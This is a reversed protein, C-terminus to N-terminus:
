DHLHITRTNRHMYVSLVLGVGMFVCVLSTGGASFFPLTVGIVPLLALCMGLNIFMQAFMMAFFGVAIIKGSEKRCLRAAKLCRICIISLLIIVALCGVIGLEEGISVFIFDNQGEPVGGNQTLSGRFLGQGFFGGNALAARGRYQQYTSGSIDAEIDFVSVIRARQDENMVLFYVLPSAVLAVGIAAVFYKWSLGAALLMFVVMIAFVLATGDDGQFHILLVPFAGHLLVPILTKPKNISEKVKSLHAAFTVIFCIKMLESPQFTTIGLDLWAKDDTGAPAFGIFFTLIVPVVGVVAALIYHRTFFDFDFSAIIVAIFVGLATGILQVAFPRYTELYRTASLVAVSGFLSAAVCVFLLIKDTERIFDAIRATWKPM